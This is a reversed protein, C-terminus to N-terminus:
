RIRYLSVQLQLAWDSGVVSGANEVRSYLQPWQWQALIDAVPHRTGRRAVSYLATVSLPITEDNFDFARSPHSVGFRPDFRSFGFGSAVQWSFQLTVQRTYTIPISFTGGLGDERTDVVLVPAVALNGAGGLPVDISAGIAWFFPDSDRLPLVAQLSPTISVNGVSLGYSAYLAPNGFEPSGPALNVPLLQGGVELSKTVGFGAGAIFSLGTPSSEQHAGIAILDLRMGGQPLTAPRDLARLPFLSDTPSQGGVAGPALAAILLAVTARM